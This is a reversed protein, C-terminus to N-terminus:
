AMPVCCMVSKLFMVLMLESALNQYPRNNIIEGEEGQGSMFTSLTIRCLEKKKNFYTVNEIALSRKCPNSHALFRCLWKIDNEMYMDKLLFYCTSFESFASYM